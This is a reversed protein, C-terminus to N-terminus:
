KKIIKFTSVQENIDHIKLFYVGKSFSSINITDKYGQNYVIKGTIDLIEIRSITNNSSSITLIDDVPNPYIDYDNIEITQVSITNYYCESYKSNKYVLVDNEYYCLLDHFVGVCNYCTPYLIGKLSGINEILTDIIHNIITDSSTIYCNALVIRKKLNNDILVSDCSQVYFYSTDRYINEYYDVSLRIRRFVSDQKLTFDYLINELAFKPNFNNGVFYTKQNEERIFGYLFCEKHEKDNCSFIKKYTKGEAITDGDFYIYDTSIPCEPCVVQGLVAWASGDNVITNNTQANAQLVFCCVLSIFIIKPIKTKM